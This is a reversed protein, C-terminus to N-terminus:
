RGEVAVVDVRDYVLCALEADGAQALAVVAHAFRAAALYVRRQVDEQTPRYPLAANGGVWTRAHPM